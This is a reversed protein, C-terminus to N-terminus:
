VVFRQEITPYRKNGITTTSAGSRQQLRVMLAGAVQIESFVPPETFWTSTYVKITVVLPEGVMVEKKNFYASAWISAPKKQSYSTSVATLLIMIFLGIKATQNLSIYSGM